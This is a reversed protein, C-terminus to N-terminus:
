MPHLFPDSILPPTLKEKKGQNVAHLFVFRLGGAERVGIRRHSSLSSSSLSFIQFPSSPPPPGIASMQQSVAGPGERCHYTPHPVAVRSPAAPISCPTNKTGPKWYSNFPKPEIYLIQKSYYGYIYSNVYVYTYIHVCIYIDIGIYISM